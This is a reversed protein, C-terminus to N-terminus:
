GEVEPTLLARFSTEAGGDREGHVFTGDPSAEAAISLTEGRRVEKVFNLYLERWAFGDPLTDFILDVYVCNNLHDNEDLMSLYIKRQDRAVTEGTEPVSLRRAALDGCLVPDAPADWKLATPRLIRRDRFDLLVWETQATFLVEEGDYLAFSRYFSAGHVGNAGTVLRLDKEGPIPALRRMAMRTLIFVMNDALMSYYTHGFTNMHERALQQMQRLVAGPRPHHDPALDFSQFRVIKEQM